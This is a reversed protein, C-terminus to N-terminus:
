RQSSKKGDKSSKTVTCQIRSVVLETRLNKADFFNTAINLFETVDANRKADKLETM